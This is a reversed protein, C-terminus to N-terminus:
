YINPLFLQAAGSAVWFHAGAVETKVGDLAGLDTEVIQDDDPDMFVDICTGAGFVGGGTKEAYLEMTGGDEVVKFDAGAIAEDNGEADLPVGNALVVNRLRLKASGNLTADDGVDTLNALAPIDDSDWPTGGNAGKVGDAIIRVHLPYGGVRFQDGVARQTPNRPPRVRSWLTTSSNAGPSAYVKQGPVGVPTWKTYKVTAAALDVVAPSGGALPISYGSM